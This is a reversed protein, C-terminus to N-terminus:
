SCHDGRNLSVTLVCSQFVSKPLRPTVEETTKSGRVKYSCKEEKQQQKLIFIFFEIMSIELSNHKESIGFSVIEKQLTQLQTIIKFNNQSNYKPTIYLHAYRKTTNLGQIFCANTLVISSWETDKLRSGQILKM